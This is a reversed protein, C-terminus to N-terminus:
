ANGLGLGLSKRAVRVRSEGDRLPFVNFPM